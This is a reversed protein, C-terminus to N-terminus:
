VLDSTPLTLHTYSVAYFVDYNFGEGNCLLDFSLNINTEGAPFAIDRYFHVTSSKTGVGSNPLWASNYTWNEGLSDSIFACNSVPMTWETNSVNTDIFWGSQKISINNVLTWGNSTFDVGNEFGGDGLPDLLITQAQTTSAFTLLSCLLATISWAFFKHTNAHVM